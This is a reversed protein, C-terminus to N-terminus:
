DLGYDVVVFLLTRLTREMLARDPVSTPGPKPDRALEDAWRAELAAHDERLLELASSLELLRGELDRTRAEFARAVGRHTASGRADLRADPGRASGDTPESRSRASPEARDRLAALTAAQEAQRLELAALARRQERLLVEAVARSASAGATRELSLLRDLPRARISPEAPPASRPSTETLRRHPPPLALDTVM